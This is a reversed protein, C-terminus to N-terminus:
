TLRLFKVEYPQLLIEGPIYSETQLDELKKFDGNLLTVTVRNAESNKNVITIFTGLTNDVALVDIGSPSSTDLISSGKKNYKVFSQKMYFVPFLRGYINWMGFGGEKLTSTGSYFLEMDVQQSKIENILASAYWASTFPEDLHKMYSARFDSSYESMVIEINPKNSQIALKRLAIISDYFLLKIDRMKKSQPYDWLSTAALMNGYHHLSIFDPNSNELFWKIENTYDTKGIVYAGTPGGVKAKTIAKIKQRVINFLVSFRPPNENWWEDNYPENWIEFYWDDVNCPNSYLNEDCNNKFHKVVTEVYDAYKFDDSPPPNGYAEKGCSEIGNAFVVFPVANSDLVANIYKDLGTFDYTRGDYPMTKEMYSVCSIWTRIYQTGVDKQLSHFLPNQSFDVWSDENSGYDMKIVGVTQALNIKVASEEYPKLNEVLLLLLTLVLLVATLAALLVPLHNKMKVFLV